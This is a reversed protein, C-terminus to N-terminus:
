GDVIWTRSDGSFANTVTAGGANVDAYTRDTARNLLYSVGTRWSASDGIDDGVHLMLAGSGIGNRRSESGPFGRGAGIEAGLEVYRETPALWHIHLGDTQLQGGFFAQYALPADFF